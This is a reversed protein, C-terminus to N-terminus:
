CWLQFEIKFCIQKLKSVPRSGYLMDRVASLSCALVHTCPGLIHECNRQNAAEADWYRPLNYYKV